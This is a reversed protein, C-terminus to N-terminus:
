ILAKLGQLLACSGYVVLWLRIPLDSCREMFGYESESASGVVICPIGFAFDFIIGRFLGRKMPYIEEPRYENPSEQAM